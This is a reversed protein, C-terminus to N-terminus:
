SVLRCLILRGLYRESNGKNHLLVTNEFPPKSTDYDERFHSLGTDEPIALGSTTITADAIRLSSLHHNGGLRMRITTEPNSKIHIYFPDVTYITGLDRQNAEYSEFGYTHSDPSSAVLSESQFTIEFDQPDLASAQLFNAISEKDSAILASLQPGHNYM